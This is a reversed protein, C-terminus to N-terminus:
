RNWYHRGIQRYTEPPLLSKGSKIQFHIAGHSASDLMQIGQKQYRDTVMKAPHRFRNRYGSPFLAYQPHVARIFDDSSSTKSGHHPVVLISASLQESYHKILHQESKTHIDGTLLVSGGPAEVHLVCSGDNGQFPGKFSNQFSVNSSHGTGSHVPPHLIRFVVGDWEWSQTDDCQRTKVRAITKPTKKALKDPVSTYVDTVQMKSLISHVGGIHDNDGHSVVLRDIKQIGNQNLFPIIVASGTDFNESFRPGTDYVLTHSRTQVVAALGQGVDLLTFWVEGYDPSIPKNFFLPLLLVGGLWRSPFGRPALLVVVGILGSVVMWIPPSPQVWLAFPLDALKELFWWLGNLLSDILLLLWGALSAQVGMMLVALFILPVVLFSIWPVAVLNAIPSLISVRQFFLLSLPLLAILVLWQIKGWQTWVQGFGEKKFGSSKLGSSAVGSPKSGIRGTMGYMIAAVAFFSLWFGVSLVSLPDLLLILLLALAIARSPISTRDLLISGMVVAVMILARQTPIAFGALMAYAFAGLLGTLAAAKPAPWYLTLRSSFSWIKRGLFYFLGAILGIHLGSIALLHNTGTRTLIEWQSSKIQNREGITLATIVGINGSDGSLVQLKEGIIQRLRHISFYVPFFNESELLRNTEPNKRVYGTAAIHQQFLWGEYDFGGPNMFGSPRKLRINLRWHDGAQLKPKRKSQRKSGRKFSTGYWSLRVKGPSEIEQGDLLLHDIRFRFRVSRGRDVPVSIIKGEAILDKGEFEPALINSHVFYGYLLAWLFGIVSISLLKLGITLKIRNTNLGSHFHLRSLWIAGIVLMPLMWAWKLDPLATVQQFIIIGILFAVTGLRM